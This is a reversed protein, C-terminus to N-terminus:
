FPTLASVVRSIIIIFVRTTRSFQTKNYTLLYIYTALTLIFHFFSTKREKKRTPLVCGTTSLSPFKSLSNRGITEQDDWFVIVMESLRRTNSAYFKPELTRSLKWM